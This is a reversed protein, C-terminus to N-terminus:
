LHEDGIETVLAEHREYAARAKSGVPLDDAEVQASLSAVYITGLIANDDPGDLRFIPDSRLPIGGVAAKLGDPGDLLQQGLDQVYQRFGEPDHEPDLGTSRLPIAASVGAWQLTM